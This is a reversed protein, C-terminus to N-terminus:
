KFCAVPCLYCRGRTYLPLEHLYVFFLTETLDCMAPIVLSPSPPSLTQGVEVVFEGVGQNLRCPLVQDPDPHGAPFCPSSFSKSSTSLSCYPTSSVSEFTFELNLSYKWDNFAGSIEKSTILYNTPVFGDVRKYLTYYRGIGTRYVFAISFQSPKKYVCTCIYRTLYKNSLEASFCCM